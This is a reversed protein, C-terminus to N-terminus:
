AAMAAFSGSSAPRTGRRAARSARGQELLLVDRWGAKTLHYAVSCGVIGGGVIVAGFEAVNEDSAM